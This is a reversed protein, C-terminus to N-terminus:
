DSAQEDQQAAKAQALAGIVDELGQAGSKPTAHVQREFSHERVQELLAGEGAGRGVFRKLHDCVVRYVRLLAQAFPTEDDLELDRRGLRHGKDRHPQYLGARAGDYHLLDSIVFWRRNVTKLKRTSILTGSRKGSMSQSAANESQSPSSILM